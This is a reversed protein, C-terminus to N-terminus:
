RLRTTGGTVIWRRDLNGFPRGPHVRRDFGVL